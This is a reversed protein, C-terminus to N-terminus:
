KCDDDTMPSHEKCSLHLGPEMPISVPYADQLGFQTIIQDILATQSLAITHKTRDREIAIGVCFRADGLDSIEWHSRLQTKFHALAQKTSGVNFFDNVHVATLITGFQDQCFYVCHECELRKFGWSLLAAYMTRNWVRGGQKM